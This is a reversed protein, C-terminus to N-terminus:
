PYPTKRQIPSSHFVITVPPFLQIYHLRSFSNSCIQVPSTPTVAQNFPAPSMVPYIHEEKKKTDERTDDSDEENCLTKREKEVAALTPTRPDYM